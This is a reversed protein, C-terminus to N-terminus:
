INETDSDGIRHRAVVSTIAEVSGRPKKGREKTVSQITQFFFNNHVIKREERENRTWPCNGKCEVADLSKFPSFYNKTDVSKQIM